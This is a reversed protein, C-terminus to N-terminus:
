QCAGVIAAYKEFAVCTHNPSSTCDTDTTCLTIGTCTAACTTHTIGSSKNECVTGGMTAGPTLTGGPACCVTAGADEYACDAPGECQWDMDGSACPTAIGVCTATGTDPDCCHQTTNDCYLEPGGDTLASFPCYITAASVGADPTPQHNGLDAQLQAETKSPCSSATGGAGTTTTATTTGGGAGGAGTTTTTSSTTTSTTTSTTGTSTTSGGAGGSGGSSCAGVSGVVACGLVAGVILFANKM